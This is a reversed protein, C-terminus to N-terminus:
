RYFGSFHRLYKWLFKGSHIISSMVSSIRQPFTPLTTPSIFFFCIGISMITLFAQSVVLIIPSFPWFFFSLIQQYFQFSGLKNRFSYSFFNAFHSGIFNEFFTGSPTKYCIGFTNGFFYEFFHGLFGFYNSFFNELEQPIVSPYEFTIQLSLRIVFYNRFLNNAINVSSNGFSHEVQFLFRHITNYM